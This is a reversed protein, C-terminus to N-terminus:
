GASRANASLLRNYLPGILLRCMRSLPSRSSYEVCSPSSESNCMSDHKSRPTVDLDRSWSEKECVTSYECATGVSTPM